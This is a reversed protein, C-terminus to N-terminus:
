PRPAATCGGYGAEAAVSLAGIRRQSCPRPSFCWALRATPLPCAASSQTPSCPPFADPRQRLAASDMPATPFCLQPSSLPPLAGPHVRRVTFRLSFPSPSLVLGDVWRLGPWRHVLVRAGSGPRQASGALASAWFRWGVALLCGGPRGPGFAGLALRREVGGPRQTPGFSAWTVSGAGQNKKRKKELVLVQM